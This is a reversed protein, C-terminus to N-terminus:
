AHHGQQGRQVAAPGEGQRATPQPRIHHHYQLLAPLFWCTPGRPYCTLWCYIFTGYGLLLLLLQLLVPPHVKRELTDTNKRLRQNDNM